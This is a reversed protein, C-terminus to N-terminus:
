GRDNIVSRPDIHAFHTGPPRTLTTPDLRGDRQARAEAASQQFSLGWIKTIDPHADLAARWPRPGAVFHPNRNGRALTARASEYVMAFAPHGKSMGWCGTSMVRQDRSEPHSCVWPGVVEPPDLVVIDSDLYIGGYLAGVAWRLLDCVSRWELGFETGTALIQGLAPHARVTADDWRYPECGPLAREQREWAASVWEPTPSGVWIRHLLPPVAGDPAAVPFYPLTSM